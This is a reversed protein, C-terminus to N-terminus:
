SATAVKDPHGDLTTALQLKEAQSLNLRGSKNALAIGAVIASSSSGSGRALPVDSDM